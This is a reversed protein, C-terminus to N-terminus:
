TSPAERWVWPACPAHHIRGGGLRTQAVVFANGRGGLLNDKPVRVDEYRIHAHTGRGPEGGFSHGVNRLINIGPTDSPVIMMSQRQYPPNDPETVVMVILFEAYRANSSFWKEGNIVWEEGDLVASCTFEKPDSGGQPETMSFCSFIEGDLLPQLYKAQHEETGYHAIIEANGSDPAQCGFVIPAMPTRGLIENLLALQGHGPGGLEPGLHTAWLGRDRVQQQLPPVLAQWIPDEPQLAHPLVYPLPEVEEGVFQDAWDLDRQYDPDTEFEWM